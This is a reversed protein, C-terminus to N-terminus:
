DAPPALGGSYFLRGTADVIIAKYEPLIRIFELGREVGLVFSTISLGDTFTADPGIVTVSLIGETPSGTMPNIIDHYRRGASM